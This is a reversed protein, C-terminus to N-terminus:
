YYIPNFSLTFSPNLNQLVKKINDSGFIRVTPRGMLHTKYVRGYSNRRDRFFSYGQLFVYIVCLKPVLLKRIKRVQTLILLWNDYKECTPTIERVAWILRSLKPKECMWLCLHCHDRITIFTFGQLSGLFRCLNPTFHVALKILLIQQFQNM